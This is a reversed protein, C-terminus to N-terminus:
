REFRLDRIADRVLRAFVSKVRSANLMGKSNVCSERKWLVEDGMDFMVRTFGAAFHCWHTIMDFTYKKGCNPILGHTILWM